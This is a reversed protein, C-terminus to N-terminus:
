PTRNHADVLRHLEDDTLVDSPTYANAIAFGGTLTISIGVGVLAAVPAAEGDKQEASAIAAAIMTSALFLGTAIGLGAKTEQRKRYAEALDPRALALYLAEGELLRGDRYPKEAHLMRGYRDGWFIDRWEIKAQAPPQHAPAVVPPPAPLTAPVDSPGMGADARARARAAPVVLVVLLISALAKRFPIMHEPPQLRPVSPVGPTMPWTAGHDPAFRGV